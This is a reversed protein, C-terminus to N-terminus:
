VFHVVASARIVKSFVALVSPNTRSTSTFMIRIFAGTGSQAANM